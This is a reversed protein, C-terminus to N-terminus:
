VNNCSSGCKSFNNSSNNTNFLGTLLKDNDFYIIDEKNICKARAFGPNCDYGMIEIARSNDYKKNIYLNYDTQNIINNKINLVEKGKLFCTAPTKQYLYGYCDANEDCSIKCNDSTTNNIPNGLNGAITSTNLYETYEKKDLLNSCQDQFNSDEPMCTTFINYNVSNNPRELKKITEM